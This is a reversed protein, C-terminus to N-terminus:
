EGLRPADYVFSILRQLEAESLAIWSKHSRLVVGGDERKQATIPGRHNRGHENAYGLVTVLIRFTSAKMEAGRLGKLYTLKSFKV